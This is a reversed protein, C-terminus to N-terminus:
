LVCTLHNLSLLMHFQPSNAYHARSDDRLRDCYLVSILSNCWQVFVWLDWEVRNVHLKSGHVGTDPVLADSYVCSIAIRELRGVSCNPRHSKRWVDKGFSERTM